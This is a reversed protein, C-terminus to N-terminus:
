CMLLNASSRHVLVCNPVGKSCATQSLHLSCSLPMCNSGSTRYWMQSLVKVVTSPGRMGRGKWCFPFSSVAALHNTSSRTTIGKSGQLPLCDISKIYM